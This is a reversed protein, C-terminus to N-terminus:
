VNNVVIALTEDMVNYTPYAIKISTMESDPSALVQCTKIGSSQFVSIGEMVCCQDQM